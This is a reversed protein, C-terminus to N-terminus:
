TQQSFLLREPVKLECRTGAFGKAGPQKHTCTMCGTGQVKCCTVDILTPQLSAYLPENV